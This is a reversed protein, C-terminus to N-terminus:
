YVQDSYHYSLIASIVIASTEVRLTSQGLSVFECGAEKAMEMEKSTFGGEPGIFSIINNVRQHEKLINKLNNSVSQNCAFLSIDYNGVCKLISGFDMVDNIETITNRGCQKSAEVAIKQWKKIKGSCDAKLKVVSREYHLPFLKQVGLEACKQILFHSRKGKPIAFAIDIGVNSEKSVAKIQGIKVKVKSGKVEIIEASCEDGRGNFLIILDGIKARKVRLMHHTEAGDIWIDKMGAHFPVCFRSVSM